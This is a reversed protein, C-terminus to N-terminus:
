VLDFELSFKFYYDDLVKVLADKNKNFFKPLASEPNTANVAKLGITLLFACYVFHLM